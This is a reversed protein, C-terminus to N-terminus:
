EDEKTSSGAKTLGAIALGAVVIYIFVFWTM